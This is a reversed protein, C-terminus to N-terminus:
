SAEGPGAGTKPPPLPQDGELVGRLIARAEDIGHPGGPLKIDSNAYAGLSVAFLKKACPSCYHNHSSFSAGTKLNILNTPHCFSVDADGCLDCADEGDDGDHFHEAPITVKVLKAEGESLGAM